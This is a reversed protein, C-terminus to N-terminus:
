SMKVEFLKGHKIMLKLAKEDHSFLKKALKKLAKLEDDQINGRESKSFGFAFFAKENVKFALLTRVSGSKGRGQTAIRKKYVSGGLNADILGDQMEKIANKLADDSLSEDDAWQKFSRTKYVKM